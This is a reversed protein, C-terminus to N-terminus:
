LCLFLNVQKRLPYNSEEFGYAREEENFQDIIEVAKQLRADLTLAKKLYRPLEEIDGYSQFEEVQKSYSELDEEFKAIRFQFFRSKM